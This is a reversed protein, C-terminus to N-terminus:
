LIIKKLSDYTYAVGRLMKEKEINLSDPEISVFYEYNEINLISFISNWDIQDMFAPPDDYRKGAIKMGGKVHFHGIKPHRNCIEVLYDQDRYFSHSPDYKIMLGEVPDIIQRWEYETYVYNNWDCNYICIDVNCSQGFAIIQTFYEIALKRNEAMSLGVDCNCGTVFKTAGLQSCRTILQKDIELQEANIQGDVIKLSRGNVSVVFMEMEIKLRM